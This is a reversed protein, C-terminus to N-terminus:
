LKAWKYIFKIVYVKEDKWKKKRRLYYLIENLFKM